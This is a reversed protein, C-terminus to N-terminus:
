ISCPLNEILHRKLAHIISVVEVRYKVRDSNLVHEKIDDPTRPISYKYKPEGSRNKFSYKIDSKHRRDELIDEYKDKYRAM